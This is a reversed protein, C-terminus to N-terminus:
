HRALMYVSHMLTFLMHNAHLCGAHFTFPWAPSIRQKQETHLLWAGASFLLCSLCVCSILSLSSLLNDYYVSSYMIQKVRTDPFPQQCNVSSILHSLSSFILPQLYVLARNQGRLHLLLRLTAPARVTHADEHSGTIKTWTQTAARCAFPSLSPSYLDPLTTIILCERLWDCRQQWLESVTTGIVTLRSSSPEVFLFSKKLFHGSLESRWSMFTFVCWWLDAASSLHLLQKWWSTVIVIISICFYPNPSATQMISNWCYDYGLTDWRM